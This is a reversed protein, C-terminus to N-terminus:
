RRGDRGRRCACPRSPSPPTPCRRCRRVRRRGPPVRRARAAPPLGRRRCGGRRPAQRRADPDVGSRREDARDSGTALQRDHAVGDVDGAAEFLRRRDATHQDGVVRVPVDAAHELHRHALRDRDAALAFRHLGVDHPAHFWAGKADTGAADFPDLGPRDAAVALQGPQLRRVLADGVPLSQTGRQDDALGADPFRPQEVVQAHPELQAALLDTEDLAPRADSTLSGREAQDAVHQGPAELDAVAVDRRLDVALQALPEALREHRGVDVRDGGPEPEAGRAALGGAAFM